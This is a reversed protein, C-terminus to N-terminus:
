TVWVPGCFSNTQCDRILHKLNYLFDPNARLSATPRGSGSGQVDKTETERQAFQIPTIYGLSRHRRIHYYTVRGDAIVVRAETPPWLQERELCEQWLRATVSGIYGNQWPSGPEIYLTKIGKARLWRRMGKEIFESGNDSRIYQPAKYEKVLRAMM